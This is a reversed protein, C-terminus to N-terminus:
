KKRRERGRQEKIRKRRRRTRSNDTEEESAKITGINDKEHTNQTQTRWVRLM